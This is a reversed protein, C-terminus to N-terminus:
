IGTELPENYIRLIYAVTTETVSLKKNAVSIKIGHQWYGIVFSSFVALKKDLRHRLEAERYESGTDIWHSSFAILLFSFLERPFYNM